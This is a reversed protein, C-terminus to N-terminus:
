GLSAGLLGSGEIAQSLMSAQSATNHSPGSSISQDAPSYPLVSFQSANSQHAAHWASFHTRVPQQANSVRSKPQVVRSAGGVQSKNKVNRRKSVRIWEASDSTESETCSKEEVPNVRPIVEHEKLSKHHGCKLSEHGFSHCQSCVSPLGQYEVNIEVIAGGCKVLISDKLPKGANVEVCVRAYSIRQKSDTARDLFLPIGLLIAIRSLCQTNWFELPLGHLKVWVPICSLTDKTFSYM